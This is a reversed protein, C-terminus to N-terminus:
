ASEDVMFDCPHTQLAPRMRMDLKIIHDDIVWSELFHTFRGVASDFWFCNKAVLLDKLFRLESLMYQQALEHQSFDFNIAQAIKEKNAFHLCLWYELQKFAQALSSSNRTEIARIVDNTLNILSRHESDIVENGVSLQENWTLGM